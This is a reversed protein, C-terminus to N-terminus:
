LVLKTVRNAFSLCMLHVDDARHYKSHEREHVTLPNMRMLSYESLEWWDGLIGLSYYRSPSKTGHQGHPRKPTKPSFLGGGYKAVLSMQSDGIRGVLGDFEWGQCDM